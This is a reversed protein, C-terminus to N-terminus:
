PEVMKVHYRKIMYEKNSEDSGWDLANELTGFSNMFVGNFRVVYTRKPNDTFEKNIAVRSDFGKM